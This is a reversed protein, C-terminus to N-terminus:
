VLIDVDMLCSSQNISSLVEKETVGTHFVGEAKVDTEKSSLSSNTGGANESLEKSGLVLYHSLHFWMCPM